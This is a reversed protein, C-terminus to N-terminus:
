RLKKKKKNMLKGRERRQKNKWIKINIRKGGKRFTNKVIEMVEIRKVNKWIRSQKTMKGKVHPSIIKGKKWRSKEVVECVQSRKKDWREKKLKKMKFVQRIVGKGWNGWVEKVFECVEVIKMENWKEMKTFWYEVWTIKSIFEFERVDM